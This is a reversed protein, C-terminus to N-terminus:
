GARRGQFSARLHVASRKFASREDKTWFGLLSIWLPFTLFIGTRIVLGTWASLGPLVSTVAYLGIGVAMMTVIRRYEYPMQYAGQASFYMVVAQLAYAVFTTIAAVIYGYRPVLILNLAVNILASVATIVPLLKVRKAYYLVTVFVFYFGRMVCGMVVWPVVRYAVHYAPRYAMIALVDRALIAIGTGLFIVFLWYYTAYRSLLTPAGPKGATKYFFPSWANMASFALIQLISAVQYGLNYIGVDDLPVYRQLIIRDSLSLIWLSLLHPVLPVAFKLSAKAQAWSWHLNANRLYVVVTPVAVLLSGLFLGRLSGLAGQQQGVVFYIVFATNVLFTAVNLVVFAAPREQVRLLARLLLLSCNTIATTWVALRIYPIYPVQEFLLPSLSRGLWEVLLSGGVAVGVMLIWVTGYYSRRATDDSFDYHFRALTSELSQLYLVSLVSGITSTIALIGYDAPALFATYLPILLFAIGRNLLDGATYIFSQKALVRLRTSV